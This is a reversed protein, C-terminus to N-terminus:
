YSCRLNIHLKKEIMQFVALLKEFNNMSQTFLKKRIFMWVHVEVDNFFVVIINVNSTLLDLCLQFISIILLYVILSVRSSIRFFITIIFIQPSYAIILTTSTLANENALSYTLETDPYTPLSRQFMRGYAVNQNLMYTYSFVSKGVYIGM